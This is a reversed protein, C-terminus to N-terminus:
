FNNNFNPVKKMYEQKYKNTSKEVTYKKLVTKEYATSRKSIYQQLICFFCITQNFNFFTQKQVM